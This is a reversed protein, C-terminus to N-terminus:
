VLFAGHNAVALGPVPESSRSRLGGSVFLSERLCIPRRLHRAWPPRQRMGASLPERVPPWSLGHPGNLTLGEPFRRDRRRRVSWPVM